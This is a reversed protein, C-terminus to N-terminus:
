FPLWRLDKSLRYGGAEQAFGAAGLAAALEPKRAQVEVRWVGRGDPSLDLGARVSGSDSAGSLDLRAAEGACIAAGRLQPGQWRWAASTRVLVDSFLNGRANVCQGGRFFIDLNGITTAGPLKLTQSVPAGRLTLAHAVLRRDGRWNGLLTADGEIEGGSFDMRAILKGQLLDKLSFRWSMEGAQLAGLRVGHFQASWISGESSAYTFVGPRQRLVFAAPALAAASVALATLFVFIRWAHMM